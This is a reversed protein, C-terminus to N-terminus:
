RVPSRARSASIDRSSSGICRRCRSSSPMAGPARATSTPQPLPEIEAQSAPLDAGGPAHDRDIEVQRQDVDRRGVELQALGVDAGPRDLRAAEVQHGRPGDQMVDGVGLGRDCVEDGAQRRPAPDEQDLRVEEGDADGCGASTLAKQSPQSAQDRACPM